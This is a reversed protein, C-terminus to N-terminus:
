SLSTGCNPCKAPDVQVGLYFKGHGKIIEHCVPCRYQRLGRIAFVAAAIFQAAALAKWKRASLGPLDPWMGAASMLALSLAILLMAADFSKLMRSRRQQFVRVIQEERDTM